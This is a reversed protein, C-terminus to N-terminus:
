VPLGGEVKLGVNKETSGKRKPYPLSLVNEVSPLSGGSFVNKGGSIECIV